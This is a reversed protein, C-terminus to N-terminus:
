PAPVRATGLALVDEAVEEGSRVAGEMYGNWVAAHEAGAFHVRGVAERLAPGYATWVGPTFHAGYCGRTHEEAMWDRELHEDVLRARPGFYREFCAVAAERREAPGVRALRRADNGEMFGLLIGPGASGSGAEPPSNDFTVKVPGEDSAAQGTLGDARWFPEDYVAFLKIVSGAPLRQTLQDRWSPLPPASEVGGAPPPPAALTVRACGVGEGPRPVGAVGGGAREGGPGRPKGRLTGGGWM